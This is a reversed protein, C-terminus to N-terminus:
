PLRGNLDVQYLTQVEGFDGIAKTFLFGDDTVLPDHYILASSDSVDGRDLLVDVVYGSDLGLVFIGHKGRYAFHHQAGLTYEGQGFFDQADGHEFNLHYGGDAIMATLSTQPFGDDYTIRGLTQGDSSTTFVISGDDAAIPGLVNESNMTWVGTRATANLVYLMGSSDYVIHEDDVAGFGIENGLGIGNATFNVLQQTTEGSGGGPIWVDLGTGGSGGDGGLFYVKNGVISCQEDTGGEASSTAGDATRADHAELEFQCNVILDDSFAWGQQFDQENGPVQFAYDVRTSGPNGPEISHMVAQDLPPPTDVWFVRHASTTYFVLSGEVPFETRFEELESARDNYQADYIASCGPAATIALVGLIAALRTM